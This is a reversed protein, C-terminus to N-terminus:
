FFLYFDKTLEKYESTYEGNKADKISFQETKFPKKNKSFCIAIRHLPKNKHPKIELIKAPYFNYNQAQSILIDKQLYPYIIYFDGKPALVKSLGSFLDALPLMNSQRAINRNELPSQYSGNFYPPNSIASDFKLTTTSAFDQFSSHVLSIRNKWVSLEINEKAQLFSKSEIEVATIEAKSKQAAMLSLLGTGAGIDLISKAKNFDAWAGLLVSDVGVKMAAKDQYVIFQKFRFYKNSM